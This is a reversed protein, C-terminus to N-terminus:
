EVTAGKTAIAANSAEASAKEPIVRYFGPDLVLRRLLASFRYGQSAFDAIFPGKIWANEAATAPRGTAYSYVRNVICSTTRPSDHVAKGLGAADKYSATDLKGSADIPQHADEMRFAGSTDYNELALGLPDMLNHCGACAPNAHHMEIAQRVSVKNGDANAFKSFDVNAPPPPIEQCLILERIAKGRLTPSTKGSSSHLASFGIQTLIGAQPMTKPMEVPMWEEFEGWQATYPVNYTSALTPTLFTKNTTFIDRYDGNHTVLLDVITRLAQEQAQKGLDSSYNPYLAADKSLSDFGDFQLMDAFYARVGVEFRPSAIMRDVQKALGDPKSLEGTEAAQLLAPDPLSGWLLLSLRTAMGQGTLRYGGPRNPDPEAREQVFLFHPSELETALALQLGFYFDKTRTAGDAAIKIEDSAEQETLPRRYLYHGVKSLFARACADDPGAADAPKCPIFQKRKKPDVVQQAIGMAMRDYQELGGPTVTAKSTGVAILEDDRADPEFRGGLTVGGFLDAVSNRYQDATLRRMVLPGGTLEASPSSPAAGIGTVALSLLAGARLLGVVKNMPLSGMTARGDFSRIM